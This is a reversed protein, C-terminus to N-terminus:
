SRPTSDRKTWAAMDAERGPADPLDIKELIVDRAYWAEADFMTLTYWQDQMGVYFLDVNKNWVVGKYLGPSYLRNTTRLKLDDALFPFSHLYGTCLIIANFNKNSGDSFCVTDGEIRNLLPREDMGAPWDYGQAATRYSLTISKAGYKKCQLGYM